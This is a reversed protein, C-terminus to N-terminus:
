FVYYVTRNHGDLCEMWYGSQTSHWRVFVLPMRSGRILSATRAEVLRRGASVIIEAYREEAGVQAEQLIRTAEALMENYIAVEGSMIPDMYTHPTGVSMYLRGGLTLIDM